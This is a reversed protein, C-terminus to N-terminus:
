EGHWCEPYCTVSPRRPRCQMNTTCYLSLASMLLLSCVSRPTAHSVCILVLYKESAGKGGRGKGAYPMLSRKTKSEQDNPILM